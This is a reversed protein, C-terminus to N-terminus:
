HVGSSLSDNEIEESSIPKFISNNGDALIFNSISEDKYKEWEYIDDLESYYNLVKDENILFFVDYIITNDPSEIKRNLYEWIYTDEYRYKKNPKGLKSLLTEKNNISKHHIHLVTKDGLYQGIGIPIMIPALVVGAGAAGVLAIAETTQGVEKSSCGVLLPMITILISKYLYNKLNKKDQISIDENNYKKYPSCLLM